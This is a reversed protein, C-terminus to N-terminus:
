WGLVTLSSIPVCWCCQWYFLSFHVFHLYQSPLICVNRWWAVLPHSSWAVSMLLSRSFVISLVLLIHLSIFSINFDSAMLSKDCWGLTSTEPLQCWCSALSFHICYLLHQPLVGVNAMLLKACWGLTPAEPLQCWAYLHSLIQSFPSVQLLFEDKLKGHVACLWISFAGFYTDYFYCTNLLTYQM